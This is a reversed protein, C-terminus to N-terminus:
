PTRAPRPKLGIKELLPLDRNRHLQWYPLRETAVLDGREGDSVEWRVLRHPAAVEVHFVWTPGDDIRARYIEVEFTGAPVVIEEAKAGRFLTAQSWGLPKHGLRSRQLSVLLPVDRAEGAALRPAALGRAWLYLGDEALGGAPRPIAGDQDAEGDFYSHSVHRLEGDDFLVQQYVQGCWEQSSYSLKVPQGAVVGAKSEVAVFASLMTNYDYIGTAFDKVLNLKLAQFVDAGSGRDSKVRSSSSFPETVFIAVASGARKEGYRPFTLDYTAIEARGDGWHTWFAEGYDPAELPAAATMGAIVLVAVLLIRHRQKM